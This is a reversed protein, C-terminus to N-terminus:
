EGIQVGARENCVLTLQERSCNVPEDDWFEFVRYRLTENENPDIELLVGEGSGGSHWSISVVDGVHLACTKPDLPADEIWKIAANVAQISGEDDEGQPDLCLRSKLMELLSKIRKNM